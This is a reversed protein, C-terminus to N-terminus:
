LLIIFRVNHCCKRNWKECRLNLLCIRLQVSSTCHFPFSFTKYYLQVNPPSWILVFTQLAYQIRPNTQMFSIICCLLKMHAKRWSSGSEFINKKFNSMTIKYSNFNEYHFLCSKLCSKQNYMIKYIIINTWDFFWYTSLLLISNM